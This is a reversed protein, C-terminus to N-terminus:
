DRVNLQVLASTCIFNCMKLRKELIKLNIKKKCFVYETMVVSKAPHFKVLNHTSGM